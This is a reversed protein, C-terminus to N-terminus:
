KMSASRVQLTASQSPMGAKKKKKKKKSIMKRPATPWFSGQNLKIYAAFRDDPHQQSSTATSTEEAEAAEEAVSQQSSAATSTGETVTVTEEGVGAEEVVAAEEAVSQRGPPDITTGDLTNNQRESTNPLTISPPPDQRVAVVNIRWGATRDDETKPKSLKPEPLPLFEGTRKHALEVVDQVQSRNASNSQPSPTSSLRRSPPDNPKKRTLCVAHPHHTSNPNEEAM